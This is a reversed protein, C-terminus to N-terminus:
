PYAGHMRRHRRSLLRNAFGRALLYPLAILMVGAFLASLPRFIGLAFIQLLSDLTIAVLFSVTISKWGQSLIQKRHGKGTILQLFYPPVGMKEDRRGDRIGLLLALVPQIFFRLEGPGQLLSGWIESISM